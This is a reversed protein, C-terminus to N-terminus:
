GTADQKDPRSRRGWVTGTACKRGKGTHWTPESPVSGRGECAISNMLVGAKEVKEPKEWSPVTGAITLTATITLVSIAFM